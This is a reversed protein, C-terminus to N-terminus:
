QSLPCSDAHVGTTPSPCHPRVPQSEHPRLYDSVVSRSFQVSSFIIEANKNFNEIPIVKTQNDSIVSIGM